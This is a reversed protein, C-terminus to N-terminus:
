PVDKGLDRTFKSLDLVDGTTKWTNGFQKLGPVRGIRCRYGLDITDDRKALDFASVTLDKYLILFRSLPSLVKNTKRCM